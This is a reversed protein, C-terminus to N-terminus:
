DTKSLIKHLALAALFGDQAEKTNYHFKPEPKEAGFPFIAYSTIPKELRQMENGDKDLIGNETIQLDYGGCQFFQSMYAEKSSKFDMLVIDGNKMELLLDFIGGVWLEESYCYGESAIFRKVNEVAWKSFIQVSPHISETECPIGLSLNLCELVYKELEAHMDVGKDASKDLKVSHAKYGCDLLNLYDEPSMSEIKTKMESARERREIANKACEEKTSKRTDLKKIWGLEQVALGSAWWTLPRALVQLATSTGILPKGDLTHLHQKGEDIFKYRNMKTNKM